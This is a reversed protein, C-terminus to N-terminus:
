SAGPPLTLSAVVRTTTPPGTRSIRRGSFGLGGSAQVLGRPGEVEARVFADDDGVLALGALAGGQARLGALAGGARPAVLVGGPGM